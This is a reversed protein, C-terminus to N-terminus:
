HVIVYRVTEERLKQVATAFRRTSPDPTRQKREDYFCLFIASFLCAGDGPVDIVRAGEPMGTTRLPQPM